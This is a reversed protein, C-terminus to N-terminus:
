DLAPDSGLADMLSSYAAPAQRLDIMTVDRDVDSIAVPEYTGTVVVQERVPAPKAPPAPADPPPNQQASALPCVLAWWVVAIV